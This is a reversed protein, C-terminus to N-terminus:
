HCCSVPSPQAEQLIWPEVVLYPLLFPLRPGQAPSSVRVALFAALSELLSLM